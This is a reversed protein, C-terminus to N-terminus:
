DADRMSWAPHTGFETPRGASGAADPRDPDVDAIGTRRVTDLDGGEPAYVPLVM